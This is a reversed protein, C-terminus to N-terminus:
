RRLSTPPPLTTPWVMRRTLTTTASSPPHTTSPPELRQLKNAHACVYCWLPVSGLGQYYQSTMAGLAGGCVHIYMFVTCVCVYYWCVVRITHSTMAGLAGCCVHIYM